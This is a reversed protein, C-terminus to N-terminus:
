SELGMIIKVLILAGIFEKIELIWNSILREANTMLCENPIPYQNNSIEKGEVV